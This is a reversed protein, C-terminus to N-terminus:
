DHRLGGPDDFFREPIPRQRHDNWLEGAQVAMHVMCRAAVLEETARHMADFREWYGGSIADIEARQSMVECTSAADAWKQRGRPYSWRRSEAYLDGAASHLDRALEHLRGTVAVMGWEAGGPM